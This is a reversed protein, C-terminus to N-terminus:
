GKKEREVQGNSQYVPSTGRWIYECDPGILTGVLKHTAEDTNEAWVYLSFKNGVEKDKLFVEYLYEKM